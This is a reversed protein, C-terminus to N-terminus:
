LQSRIFSYDRVRCWQMFRRVRSRRARSRTFVAHTTITIERSESIISERTGIPRNRHGIRVYIECRLLTCKWREGVRARSHAPYSRARCNAFHWECFLKYVLRPSDIRCTRASPQQCVFSFPLFLVSFSLLFLFFLFGPAEDKRGGLSVGTRRKRERSGSHIIPVAGM